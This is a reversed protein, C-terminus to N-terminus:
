KSTRFRRHAFVAGNEGGHEGPADSYPSALRAREGANAVAIFLEYGEGDGPDHPSDNDGIMAAGTTLAVDIADRLRQLGFSSGVIAAEDHPGHQGFIALTGWTVPPVYAPKADVASEPSNM